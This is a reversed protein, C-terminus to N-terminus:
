NVPLTLVPKAGPVEGVVSSFLASILSFSARADLETAPVYFWKGEYKVKLWADSPETPSWRVILFEDLDVARQRVLGNDLDEDPVQISAAAFRLVEMVSRNNLMIHQLRPNPDFLTSLAASESRLLEPSASTTDTIPFSYKAPDLKLLARVRQARPDRDSALTFRIFLPNLFVRPTVVGPLEPRELFYLRSPLGESVARTDLQSIPVTAGGYASMLAFSLDVLGDRRLEEILELTEVFEDYTAPTIQGDIVEFERNRLRNMKRAGVRFVDVLNFGARSLVALQDTGVPAHFRGLFERSDPISWTVSPSESYSLSGSLGLVNPGNEPITGTAGVSASANFNTTISSLQLFYPEEDYRLRVLNLLLQENKTERITENLDWHRAQIIDAQLGCGVVLPFVMVLALHSLTVWRSRQRTTRSGFHKVKSIALMGTRM